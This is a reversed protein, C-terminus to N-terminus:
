SSMNGTWTETVDEQTDSTIMFHLVAFCASPNTQGAVSRLYIGVHDGAAFTIPSTFTTKRAARANRLPVTLQLTSTQNGANWAVKRLEIDCGSNAVTNSFTLGVLQCDWPMIHPTANSPVIVDDCGLWINTGANAQSGFDLTFTKGVPSLVTLFANEWNSTVSNYVLLQGHQPSTITVDSLADVNANVNIQGVGSGANTASVLPGTFNLQTFPGGSVIVGEDQLNISSGSGAPGMPGSVGQPGQPGVEGQIGQIGQPGVPGTAGSLRTV